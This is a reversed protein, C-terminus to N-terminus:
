IAKSSHKIHAKFNGTKIWDLLRRLTHSMVNINERPKFGATRTHSVAEDVLECFRM